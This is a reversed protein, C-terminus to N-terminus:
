TNPTREFRFIRRLRAVDVSPVDDATAVLVHSVEVHVPGSSLDDGWTREGEGFPFLRRISAGGSAATERREEDSPARTWFVM